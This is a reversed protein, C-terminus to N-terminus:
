HNIQGWVIFYDLANLGTADFNSVSGLIYNGKISHKFQNQCSDTPYTNFITRLQVDTAPGFEFFAVKNWTNHTTLYASQLAQLNTETSDKLYEEAASILQM